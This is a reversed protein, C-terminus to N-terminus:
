VFEGVLVSFLYFAQLDSTIFQYILFVAFVVGTAQLAPHAHIFAHRYKTKFSVPLWHIIMGILFMVFVGWHNEVIKLSAEWSWNTMLQHWMRGALEM